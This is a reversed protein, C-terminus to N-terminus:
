EAWEAPVEVDAGPLAPRLRLVDSLCKEMSVAWVDPSSWRVRRLGAAGMCERRSPSEALERMRNELAKSNEPPVLFGTVGEAVRVTIEGAETSSVVPLGCAMAEDVVLGYPDGLTPFVFVDGLAYLAGLDRKQAFGAFVVNRVGLTACQARLAAEDVGDGILLLSCKDQLSGQLSAFADLLYRLGKKNWLRGCYVYTIGALGMAKRRASRVGPALRSSATYLAADIVQPLHHVREQSVGYALVFNTSDAGITLVANARPLVFRKLAEKWRSRKQWRDFTKECYFATRIGAARAVFWGALCLPDGHLTVLLDPRRRGWLRRWVVARMGWLGRESLVTNPYRWTRREVDWSRDSRRAENYWVELDVNGRDHLANFRELNYPTMQDVWYLLRPRITGNSLQPQPM